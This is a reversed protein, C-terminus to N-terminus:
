GRNKERHKKADKLAAKAREKAADFEEGERPGLGLASARVALEAAVDLAGVNGAGGASGLRANALVELVEDAALASFACDIDAWQSILGRPLVFHRRERHAAPGNKQIVDVHACGAVTCLGRVFGHSCRPARHTSAGAAPQRGPAGSRVVAPQAVHGWGGHQDRPARRRAEVAAALLIPPDPAAGRRELSVLTAPTGSPAGEGLLEFLREIARLFESRLAALTADKGHFARLAERLRDLRARDASDLATLIDRILEAAIGSDDDTVGAPEQWIASPADSHPKSRPKRSDRAPAKKKASAM